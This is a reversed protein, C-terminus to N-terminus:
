SDIQLAHPEYKIAEITYQRQSLEDVVERDLLHNQHRRYSANQRPELFRVDFSEKM